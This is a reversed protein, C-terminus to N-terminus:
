WRCCTSSENAAVVYSLSRSIFISSSLGDVGSVTGKAANETAYDILTFSGDGSGYVAGEQEEPM